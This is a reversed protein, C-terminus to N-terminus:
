RPARLMTGSGDTVNLVANSLRGLPVALCIIARLKSQGDSFLYGDIISEM